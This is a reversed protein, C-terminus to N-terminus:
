HSLRVFVNLCDILTEINLQKMARCGDNLENLLQKRLEIQRPKIDDAYDLIINVIDSNFITLLQKIM